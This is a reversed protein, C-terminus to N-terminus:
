VREVSHVGPIQGIARLVDNLQKVDAIEVEFTSVAGDGNARANAQVINVGVEAFTESMRALLGKRDDSMVRLNVVRKFDAHADWAVEVRREPDTEMAKRCGRVHVTVGRGRTIFGVIPDGPVPACCKGYRVLVDDIGGIRVGGSTRSRQAVRRFLQTLASGPAGDAEERQDPAKLKEPPFLKHLVNAPSLKGYGVASVLDEARSHGMDNAAKLFESGKAIRAFNLDFRKFERELLDRGIDISRERQQNKIFSRIKAQARSTKVFSLWDKNPRASPSTLIEV